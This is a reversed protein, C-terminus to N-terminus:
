HMDYTSKEKRKKEKRKKNRTEKRKRIRKNEKEKKKEIKWSSRKKTIFTSSQKKNTEFWWIDVTSSYL